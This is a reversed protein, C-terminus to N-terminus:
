PTANNPVLTLLHSNTQQYNTTSRHKALQTLYNFLHFQLTMWQNQENPFFLAEAWNYFPFGKNFPCGESSVKEKKNNLSM